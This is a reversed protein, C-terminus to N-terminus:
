MGCFLTYKETSSSRPSLFQAAGRATIYQCVCVFPPKEPRLFSCFFVHLQFPHAGVALDYSVKVARRVAIGLDALDLHEALGHGEGGILHLDHLVNQFIGVLSFDLTGRVRFGKWGDERELTDDPADETLCVLSIEEDTKGVFCIDESLDIAAADSLKCVTLEYPLKKLKMGTM